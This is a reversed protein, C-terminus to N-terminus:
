FKNKDDIIAYVGTADHKLMIIFEDYTNTATNKIKIDIPKNYSVIEPKTVQGAETGFYFNSGPAAIPLKFEKKEAVGKTKPDLIVKAQAWNGKDMFSIWVKKNSNNEVNVKTVGEKLDPEQANITTTLNLGIFLFFISLVPITKKNKM